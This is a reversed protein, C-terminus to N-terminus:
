KIKGKRWEPLKRVEKTHLFYKWKEGDTSKFVIGDYSSYITQWCTYNYGLNIMAECAEIVEKTWM